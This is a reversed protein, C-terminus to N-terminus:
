YLTALKDVLIDTIHLKRNIIDKYSFFAFDSSDNYIYYNEFLYNYNLDKIVKLFAELFEKQQPQLQQM